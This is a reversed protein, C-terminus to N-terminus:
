LFLFPVAKLSDLGLGFCGGPSLSALKLAPVLHFSRTTLSSTTASGSLGVNVWVRAGVTGASSASVTGTFLEVEVLFENTGSKCTSIFYIIGVGISLFLKAPM